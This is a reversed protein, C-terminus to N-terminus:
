EAPAASILLLCLYVCSFLAQQWTNGWFLPIVRFPTGAKIPHCPNMRVTSCHALALPFM